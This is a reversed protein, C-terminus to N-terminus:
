ENKEFVETYIHKLKEAISTADLGLEIIRSRGKTKDNKESFNLAQEIKVSVDQPDFDCIYHGQENGFLWHIDGVDTAVVPCNCAMAEKIINPSGEWRSTLLLIDAQLIESLVEEHSKNYVVKLKANINEMAQKALQYNKSARNPDAAFLVTKKNPSKNQISKKDPMLKELNEIKKIDVGNPIITSNKIGTNILMQKSKVITKKWFLKNSLKLTSKFIRKLQTDSGMLSVVHIHHPLFFLAITTVMASMSYHSHIIDPPNQKIYNILPFVNRLYGFIGKGKVLFFDISIGSAQLSDAQNKVVTGPKGTKNGSAIFLVKM